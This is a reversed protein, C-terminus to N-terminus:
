DDAPDRQKAPRGPLEVALPWQGLHRRHPRPPHQGISRDYHQLYRLRHLRPEQARHGRHHGLEPADLGRQRLLSARRQRRFPRPSPDREIWPGRRQGALSAHQSATWQLIGVGLQRGLQDRVSSGGVPGEGHAPGRWRRLLFRDPREDYQEPTACELEPRCDWLTAPLYKVPDHLQHGDFHLSHVADRQVGM